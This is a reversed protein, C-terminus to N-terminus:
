RRLRTPCGAAAGPLACAQRPSAGQFCGPGGSGRSPSSPRQVAPWARLLFSLATACVTGPVCDSFFSFFLGQGGPCLRKRKHARCPAGVRLHSDKVPGVPPVTLRVALTDTTLRFGFSAAPLVSAQRVPVAYLCGHPVLPCICEFDSVQVSSMSTSAAPM